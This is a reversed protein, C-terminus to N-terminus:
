KLRQRLAEYAADIMPELVATEHPGVAHEFKALSEERLLHLTMLHRSLGMCAWKRSSKAAEALENDHKAIQEALLEERPKVNFGHDRVPALALTRAKGDGRIRTLRALLM